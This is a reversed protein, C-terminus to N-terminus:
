EAAERTLTALSAALMEPSCSQIRVTANALEIVVSDTAEPGAVSLQVFTPEEAESAAEQLKRRWQYFSPQSIGHERCFGAISLGSRAQEKLIGKWKAVSESRM